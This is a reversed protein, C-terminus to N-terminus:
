LVREWEADKRWSKLVIWCTIQHYKAAYECVKDKEKPSIYAKDKSYKLQAECYRGDQEVWYVDMVGKSAYFREAKIARGSKKLDNCFRREFSAGKRYNLNPLYDRWFLNM